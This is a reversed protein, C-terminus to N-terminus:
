QYTADSIKFESILKKLMDSQGFLEESAAASEESSGSNSQVIESIQEIELTIKKIQHTQKQTSDAIKGVSDTVESASQIVSKISQVTNDAIRTGENVAAIARAIISETNKASSASKEALNRVENAVVSFGAGAVGARAAEVAANLALINTQFSIDDIEKMIKKIENAAGSIDQMALLLQDSQEDCTALTQASKQNTTNAYDANESTEHIQSSVEDLTMCLQELSAAQSSAGIALSQSSTAVQGSGISVQQSALNIDRFTTSLSSEIHQISELINSYAGIYLQPIESNVDFNKNAMEGMINSIDGIIAKTTDVIDASARALQAVEDKGSVTPMPTDMDGHALLIIRDTCAKIPLAISKALRRIVFIGIILIILALVISCVIALIADFLFDYSPTTMVLRWGNSDEVSAYTVYTSKGDNSYNSFDTSGDASLSHIQALSALSPDTAALLEINENATVKTIDPHAITTGKSDLLYTITNETMQISEVLDNLFHEDPVVYVIGAIEGNVVGDKWLPASIVCVFDGTVKSVVPDSIFVEGQMSKQFYERNSYDNGDALSIGDAYILNGRKMGQYGLNSNLIAVREDTSLTEDTLAATSGIDKAIAEYTNIEMMLRETAISIAGISNNRILTETAKFNMFSVVPLTILFSMCLIIVFPIIIRNQLKRM